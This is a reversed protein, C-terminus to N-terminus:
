IQKEKQRVEHEEKLSKELGVKGQTYLSCHAARGLPSYPFAGTRIDEQTNKKRTLRAQHARNTKTQNKYTESNAAPKM